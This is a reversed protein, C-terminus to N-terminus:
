INESIIKVCAQVEGAIHSYADCPPKLISIGDEVLQTAESLDTQQRQECLLKAISKSSKVLDGLKLSLIPLDHEETPPKVNELESKALQIAVLPLCINGFVGLKDAHFDRIVAAKDKLSVGTFAIKDYIDPEIIKRIQKEKRRSVELIMSMAERVIACNDKISKSEDASVSSYSEGFHTNIIILLRNTITFYRNVYHHLTQTSRILQENKDSSVLSWM